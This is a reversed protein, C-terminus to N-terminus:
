VFDEMIANLIMDILNNLFEVLRCYWPRKDEDPIPSKRKLREKFANEFVSM